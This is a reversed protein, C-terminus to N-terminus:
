LYKPLILEKFIVLEDLYTEYNNFNNTYVIRSTTYKVDYFIEDVEIYNLTGICFCIIFNNTKIKYRKYLINKDYKSYKNFHDKMVEFFQDEFQDRNM